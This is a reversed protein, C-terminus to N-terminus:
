NTFKRKVIALLASVAEGNVDWAHKSAYRHWILDEAEAYSKVTDLEYIAKEFHESNKSFLQNVFMFRQGLPISAAISEVKVQVNGYSKDETPKPVDVKFRNNLSEKEASNSKSVIESIITGATAARQNSSPVTKISEIESLASDFFSKPEDKKSVSNTLPEAAPLLLETSDLAVIESFQQEFISKDDFLTPDNVLDQLWNAARVVSVSDTECEILQVELAKVIGQHINTYKVLEEGKEINYMAEPLSKLKEQFYYEPTYLLTIADRVSQKLLPELDIRKVSIHQSATNM